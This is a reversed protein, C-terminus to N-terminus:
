SSFFAKADPYKEGLIRPTTRSSSPTVLSSPPFSCSPISSKLRRQWGCSGGEVKVEVEGDDEGEGEDGGEDASFAGWDGELGGGWPRSKESRQCLSSMGGWM